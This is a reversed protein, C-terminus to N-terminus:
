GLAQLMDSTIMVIGRDTRHFRRADETPDEGVVLGDPIQCERDVIVKDLKVNRGIRVHPLLVSSKIKCFPGVQVNCSLVSEEIESGSVICGPSFISNKASGPDNRSDFSFKAPPLQEPYTFIPWNIDYLDLEPLPRTLDLNSEWYSDVTGVDRWYPSSDPHSRVCSSTFFHAMVNCRSILSPLLDTGFDHSSNQDEADRALEKRLFGAKFIYIGMSALARDPKDPMGPPDDPKELFDIIRNQENVHVVGFRSAERRPVEICSVTVDADTEVHDALMLSYDMKYVHDGALVLINKAGYSKLIDANQHVADATGQYWRSGDERQHAPILDIFEGVEGNLHWSRQMHRLLGHSQYQTMLCIRRFGSHICNSVAFDVIRYKGGFDIAPKAQSSTLDKLRSGRGGALIVVVTDKSEKILHNSM